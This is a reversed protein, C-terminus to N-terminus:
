KDIRTKMAKIEESNSILETIDRVKKKYKKGFKEYTIEIIPCKIDLKVRQLPEGFDDTIEIM